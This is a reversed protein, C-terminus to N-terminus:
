PVCRRAAKSKCQERRKPIQQAKARIINPGSSMWVKLCLSVSSVGPRGRTSPYTSQLDPGPQALFLWNQHLSGELRERLIAVGDPVFM